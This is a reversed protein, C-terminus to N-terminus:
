VPKRIHAVSRKYGIFAKYFISYLQSFSIFLYFPTAVGIALIVIALWRCESAVVAYVATMFSVLMALFAIVTLQHGWTLVSFLFMKHQSWAWIFGVVVLLSCCLAITNSLLFAKFAAHKMLLASGQNPGDNKYGGPMTFTAAFTVSAILAAVLTYTRVKSKHRDSRAARRQLRTECVGSPM